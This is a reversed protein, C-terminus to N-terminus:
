YKISLYIKQPYKGNGGLDSWGGVIDLKLENKIIDQVKFFYKKRFEMESEISTHYHIYMNLQKKSPIDKFEFEFDKYNLEDLFYEKLKNEIQDKISANIKIDKNIHLKEIIYKNIQKM